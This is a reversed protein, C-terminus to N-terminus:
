NKYLKRAMSWYVIHQGIGLVVLVLTPLLEYLFTDKALMVVALFLPIVSYFYIYVRRCAQYTIWQEGEDSENFEPPILTIFKIKKDPHNRNHTTILITYPILWAFFILWSALFLRDYDYKILREIYSDPLTIVFSILGLSLLAFSSFLPSRMIREFM